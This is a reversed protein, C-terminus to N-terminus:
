GGDGINFFLSLNKKRGLDYSNVFTQYCVSCELDGCCSFYMGSGQRQCAQQVDRQGPGGRVDRREHSRLYALGGNGHSCLLTCRLPHVDDRVYHRPCPVALAQVVHFLRHPQPWTISFRLATLFWLIGFHRTFGFKVVAIVADAVM